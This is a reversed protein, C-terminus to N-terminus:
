LEVLAELFKEIKQKAESPSCNYNNFLVSFSLETGAKTKVYGAYGRARSIYGSKARMNKEAFTGKGIGSLSGSQGAVPLSANFIKYMNPDRYIKSLITAQQYTSIGNSRSLGSGDSMFFGEVDVGRGKWYNLVLDIAPYLSGYGNKKLAITKLLTEAFLNNSHLNTQYVISSLPPSKHIYLSETLEKMPEDMVTISDTTGIGAKILAKNLAYACYWAPDPMAIEVEFSSKNPPLTGTMLRTNQGPAGYVCANDDKGGTTIKNVFVLGPVEPIQKVLQTSDGTKAGTRFYLKIKNDNYSLGNPPAGFYNGMDSWIWNGPVNNDFCSNDVIIKGLVRKLGKAKLVAAWEDVLEVAGDSKKFYESNLTPDGSGKIVLNGTLMGTISDYNGDVMLKTEYRYGSGLMGLAASTTIIKLTSAPTMALKSNNEVLQDGTKANLVCFSVVAPKLQPDNKYEELLANIKDVGAKEQAQIGFSLFVLFLVAYRM